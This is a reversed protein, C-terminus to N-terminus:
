PHLPELLSALRRATALTLRGHLDVAVDRDAGLVERASAVRAVVGDLEAVTGNRGMRGSANMKVATLGVALQASIHDAVESPDDGGVWGYPRIGGRVAGGLLEHVPVGLRKDKVDWVPEDVGAVASSLVQGGRFVEEKTRGQGNG